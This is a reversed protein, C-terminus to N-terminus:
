KQKELYLEIARAVSPAEPTPAKVDIKLGADEMAKVISKGYSVFKIDGQTFSPFNVFLSKVDNPNYLVIIDYKDLLIYYIEGGNIMVSSVEVRLYYTKGAKVGYNVNNAQYSIFYDPVTDDMHSLSNNKTIPTKNEYDSYM